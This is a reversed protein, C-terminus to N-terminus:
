GARHFLRFRHGNHRKQYAMSAPVTLEAETGAGVESWFNLRAGIRQARERMGPIGFHGSQGGADLVKPDIGKGDDRVRLRLHDQDYRIEVEIHSAAAHAFANRIVERSIRYVEDQLMPSLEQQKGEILVRYSPAQGNLVHTAALERGAADLLESLNRQAAPEPRLDRIASRGEKIGEEATQIAEDVMEMANDASRLLLKRAAQFQFVAAQFSQLLTDHLERAIRLREGVRAELGFAFQRQMQHLRLRYVAWLLALFATVCLLRFWNTQYFAPLISFELAAGTENWVGSNNSAIVRFTYRRPALNSYQARRDNIVEKWNPDQGELKYRFRIKEPAVLSLATYDITLDRLHPPLKLGSAPDYNKGDATIKEIYVPPPLKNVPLHHPDIVSVGDKPLFWIRGDASKTVHPSYSGYIDVSRVGDSTDFITTKVVHRPEDVWASWESHDIRALGCPMYLWLAHDDDEISWNVADCPLGNKSSITEIPADKSHSDNLNIRSLGSETAAWLEGRSGFRLQTVHGNGLGDAAGYSRVTKGDKLTAIGGEYFGLWFSGPEKDPLLTVVTKQPFQSLPIQQTASNPSWYFIGAQLNLIWVHGHGDGAVSSIVGGPVGSVRVFRGHEFYFVGETTSVWLRGAFDLGLSEATSALGSNAIVTAAEGANLETEDKQHDRALASRGRYVTVHGNAWQNIGEATGLWVSGDAMAQVSWAESSSLGQNRSITFVPYERFRDLGETTAVWIDGERDEFIGLVHDGSLGDSARFGDVKGRHLRLLGESTGIWLSGDSSRFFRNPRFKGRVGPLSHNEIRGDVFQKLGDNTALLLTGSDDEIIANIEVVGRPYAYREPPGPSWRWLGTSTPAWLNGKHDRYLTSVFSSFNREGECEVKGSRVACLRGKSPQYVTFWLTGDRGELFNGVPDGVTEQYQTFKGNKWSALGKMTSIWLTGDRAALLRQINNSPLQEGAPPQWPVARVGDFRLLGFETGLWLYGDPTQAISMISGKAFGDRIKWATHAYQNVDLSPDLAGACVCCALGIFYLKITLAVPHRV